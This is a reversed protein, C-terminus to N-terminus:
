ITIVHHPALTYDLRSAIRARRERRRTRWLPVQLDPARRRKWNLDGQIRMSLGPVQGGM